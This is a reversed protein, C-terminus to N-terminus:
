EFKSTAIKGIMTNRKSNMVELMNRIHGLSSSEIPISRSVLSTGTEFADSAAELYEHCYERFAKCSEVYIMLNDYTCIADKCSSRFTDLMRKEQEEEFFKMVTIWLNTNFMGSCEYIPM